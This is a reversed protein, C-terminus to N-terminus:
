RAGPRRWLVIAGCADAGRRFREPVESATRYLEVAALTEPRLELDLTGRLPQFPLGDLWYSVVCEGTVRSVAEGARRGDFVDRRSTDDAMTRVDMGRSRNRAGEAARRQDTIHVIADGDRLEIRVGAIARFLDSVRAPARRAIADRDMFVGRGLRRRAEFGGGDPASETPLAGLPLAADVRASVAPQAAHLTDAVATVRAADGLVVAAIEGAGRGPAVFATVVEGGDERVGILQERGREQGSVGPVSMPGAPAPRGDIAVVPMRIWWRQVIWAGNPMRRFEVHGGFPERSSPFRVGTYEYEMHRLAGSAEDLWLVGRVDPRRARVPEFTLGVLGSGREGERVGFCHGDLFEASLLVAADPAYFVTTDSQPRVYGNAALDAAPASTFPRESVGARARRSVARTERLSPDLLRTYQEISVSMMRQEAALDAADLAKRVEEWLAHAARGEAPRVDCRKGERVRVDALRVPVASAAIRLERLEGAGLEFPATTTSRFGIRQSRVAFRGAGGAAVAFRGGEDTFARGVGRGGADLLVVVAGPVPARTADEVVTGRVIQAPLRPAATALAVCALAVTAVHSVRTVDPAQRLRAAIRPRAVLSSLHM